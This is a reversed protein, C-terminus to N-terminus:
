PRRPVPHWSGDTARRRLATTGAPVLLPHQSLYGSGAQVELARRTGDAGEAVLRTGPPGPPAFQPLVTRERHAHLPGDNRAFVVETGDPLGRVVLAKHDGFAVLGHEVPPVVVLGNATARLVLGSGGDHRGTEPEPAFSNQAGVLLDGIAVMGFIPAIQARRPLEELTFGGKGDNRLLMSALTTAALQGGQALKPATYIDALLSGAFQEYTPFKQQLFPMAQSSCSRGRVPLLNDGEYKAEILDRRGDDDFDGFYLRAPHLADAKYKTNRGQNGAVYDLDGDADVDWACLSNWWGTHAALGATATADVFRQGGDNRLLRIPQWHAALLLDVFGDDDVDTFLASTVMGAQLLAPAREATADSFRGGDNRYLRSPPADPYQGPVLRGAVFLDLDGDHDFDAACAHGSSERVDPLARDDRVFVLQGDNRYLRDRLTADGASAEAGGSAVFLDLDGDGDHDLWLCGLDDCAADQTWPGSQAQWGTPTALFLTGAQGHAGGVFLDEDGDGDADGLALGPGLKAVGAPLLPQAVYEDFANEAHAFPPAAADRFRPAVAEGFERRDIAAASPPAPPAEPPETITHRQGAPVDAFTQEHGSPWQVRLSKVANAQGLGFHLEPAQGSLYGRASGMDRRLVTGDALVATVTAGLGFRESHQGRLQM